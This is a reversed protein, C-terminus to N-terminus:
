ARRAGRRIANEMERRFWTKGWRAWAEEFHRPKTGPHEVHMAFVTPGSSTGPGGYSPGRPRTKPTYVSPFALVGGPKRPKIPYKRHKPGYLGTGRSVWVWYKKNPGTPWVDVAIAGRTVVKRAKFEPKHEWNAVIREAYSLLRPKVVADLTREAEKAIGTWNPHKRRGRFRRILIRM